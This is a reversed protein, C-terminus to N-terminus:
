VINRDAAPILGRKAQADWAVENDRPMYKALIQEASFPSHGTILAIQPITCGARALQVFCSHRLSRIVHHRVFVTDFGTARRRRASSRRGSAWLAQAVVHAAGSRHADRKREPSRRPALSRWSAHAM